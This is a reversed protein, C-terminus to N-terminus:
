SGAFAEVGHIGSVIVVLQKPEKLAPLYLSDVTLDSDRLSPVAFPRQTAGPWGAALQAAEARFAHRAEAYDASYYPKWASEGSARGLTAAFLLCVLFLARPSVDSLSSVHPFM